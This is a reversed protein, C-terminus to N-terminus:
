CVGRRCCGGGGERDLSAQLEELVGEPRLQTSKSVLLRMDEREYWGGRGAGGMGDTELQRMLEKM